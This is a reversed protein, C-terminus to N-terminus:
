ETCREFGCRDYSGLWEFQVGDNTGIFNVILQDTKKVIWDDNQEFYEQQFYEEYLYRQSNQDWSRDDPFEKPRVDLKGQM